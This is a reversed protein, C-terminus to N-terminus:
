DTKIARVLLENVDVTSPLSAVYVIAQAIDESKLQPIKGAASEMMAKTPQHTIHQRLETNVVGPEIITTRIGYPQVEQRLSETFAIVGAKTASYVASGAQVVRGGVSSINIIHGSGQEKMIPLVAYTTWLLGSLNTDIMRQWDSLDADLVPGLLMVGANNILIDIRGLKKQTELVMEHVAQPNTIDCEISASTGGAKKISRALQSLRDDRRGTIAVDAGAAALAGATAYGIGSTAGTILAKKGQLSNEM